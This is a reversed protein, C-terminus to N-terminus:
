PRHTAPMCARSAVGNTRAILTRDVGPTGSTSTQREIRPKQGFLFCRARYRMVTGACSTSNAIHAHPSARPYALPGPRETPRSKSQVGRECADDDEGIQPQCAHDTFA